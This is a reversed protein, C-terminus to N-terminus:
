ARVGAACDSPFSAASRRPNWLVDGTVKHHNLVGIEFVRRFFKRRKMSSDALAAGVDDVSRPKQPAM